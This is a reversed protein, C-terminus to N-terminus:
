RPRRTFFEVRHTVWHTRIDRIAYQLEDDLSRGIPSWTKEIVTGDWALVDKHPRGHATDYRVAAHWQEEEAIWVEYQVLYALLRGYQLTRRVRITNGATITIFHEEETQGRTGDSM